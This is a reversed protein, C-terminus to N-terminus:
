PQPARTARVSRLDAGGLELPSPSPGVVCEFTVGEAGFAPNNVVFPRPALDTGPLTTEAPLPLHVAQRAGPLTAEVQGRDQAALCIRVSRGLARLLIHDCGAADEWAVAEVGDEPQWVSVRVPPVAVNAFEPWRGELSTQGAIDAELIRTEAAALARRETVFCPWERILPSVVLPGAVDAESVPALWAEPGLKLVSREGLWAGSLGWDPLNGAVFAKADSPQPPYAFATRPRSALWSRDARAARAFTALWELQRPDNVLEFLTWNKDGDSGALSLGFMFVGRAGLALLRNLDAYMADRSAYAIRRDTWTVGNYETVLCWLPRATQLVDAYTAAGNFTALRDGGVYSEMGLGSLGGAACDNAWVRTAEHHRKAVVPVDCVAKLADCLANLRTRLSVERAECMDWWMRSRRLDVRLADEAGDDVAWGLEPWAGDAGGAILPVLRAAREFDGVEAPDLGWAGALGEPGAYRERLFAAFERRWGDPTPLFFRPPAYENGIPDVLLRFGPGLRLQRLYDATRDADGSEIWPARVRPVLKVFAGEPPLPGPDVSFAGDRAAVTGSALLDGGAESVVVYRASTLGEAPFAVPGPAEARALFRDPRIEYGTIRGQPPTCVQLGYRFDLLELLDLVQQLRPPPVERVPNLYLDEIGAVRILTLLERDRELPADGDQWFARACYMGGFPLYPEGEWIVTHSEAIRWPHRGGERDVFAGQGFAASEGWALAALAFATCRGHDGTV